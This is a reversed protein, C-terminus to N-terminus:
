PRRGEINTNADALDYVALQRHVWAKYPEATHVAADRRALIGAAVAQERTALPFSFQHQDGNIVRWPGSILGYAVYVCGRVTRSRARGLCEQGLLVASEGADIFDQACAVDDCMPCVYAFFRPDDGFREIAETLLTRMTLVREPANM